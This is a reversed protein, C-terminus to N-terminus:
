PLGVTLEKYTRRVVIERQQEYGPLDQYQPLTVAAVAQDETAGRGIEKQVAVRVDVLIQRLRLLAQRSERPNDSM